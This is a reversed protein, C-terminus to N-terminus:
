QQIRSRPAEWVAEGVAVVDDTAVEVPVDGGFNMTIQRIKNALFGGVLVARQIMGVDRARLCWFAGVIRSTKANLEVHTPVHSRVVGAMNRAEAMIELFSHAVQLRCVRVREGESFNNSVRLIANRQM